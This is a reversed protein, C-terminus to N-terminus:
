QALKVYELHTFFGTIVGPFVYEAVYKPNVVAEAYLWFMPMEAFENFKYDGIERLLRAREGPDVIKGLAEVREEIFPHEFSNVVGDKSKNFIRIFDLARLANRGPWVAGHMAKTRYLERVRPFDVETL